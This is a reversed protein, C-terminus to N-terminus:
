PKPTKVVFTPIMSQMNQFTALAKVILDRMTGEADIGFCMRMGDVPGAGVLKAVVENTDASTVQVKGVVFEGERRTDLSVVYGHNDLEDRILKQLEASEQAKVQTM